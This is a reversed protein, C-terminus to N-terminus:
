ENAGGEDQLGQGGVEGTDKKTLMRKLLNSDDEIM